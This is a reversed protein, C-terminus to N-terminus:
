INTIEPGGGSFARGLKYRGGVVTGKRKIAYIRNHAWRRREQEPSTGDGLYITPILSACLYNAFISPWINSQNM